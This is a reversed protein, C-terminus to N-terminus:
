SKPGDKWYFSCPDTRFGLERGKLIVETGGVLLVGGPKLAQYFSRYIQEKAEDTFYIVVNRCLILDFNREYPDRLLDHLKFDVKQRVRSTVAYKDESKVFYKALFAADVNKLENATYDQGLRARAVIKQDIDTALIRYNPAHKEELLMAVSYAEAGISCGASWARIERSQRLLAPLVESELEHFKQKDRFFESVNITFFDRFEKLRSSDHELVRSYEIFNDVNVRGMLTGLRRRMQQSKYKSLDIKTLEFAKRQFYAYGLDQM